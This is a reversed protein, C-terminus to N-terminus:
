KKNSAALRDRLYAFFLKDEDDLGVLLLTGFFLVVAAAAIVFLDLLAPGPLVLRILTLGVIAIGAALLGKLYRRDYPWLGLLRKVQFLGVLSLLAVSASTALAAGTIGWRPIFAVNLAMALLMVVGSSYFWINQHGTMILLRAVGGASINILLGVTLIVLPTVGEIFAVGFLGEMVAVPAFFVVLFVPANAYTGWKTSIRYINQLEAYYGKHHLDSIMPSFVTNFGELVVAFVISLQAAAQYIGVETVTLYYGIFLRDLRNVVVSFLGSMATPLSYVLLARNTVALERKLQLADPFLRYLYYCSLGFSLIFSLTAAWIAGMLGWGVLFFLVFMLLASVSQLLEEAYVAYQMRQSIRTANAAVRLGVMFPMVLVFARFAPTFGADAFVNQGLWSASFWLAVTLACSISLSLALSRLLTDKFQRKNADRLPTAFRIVGNQLGLPAIMALLKLLNWILAYLGFAEIALLRALLIQKIFEVGRGLVKGVLSVAAGVALRQMAKQSELEPASSRELVIEQQPSETQMKNQSTWTVAPSPM